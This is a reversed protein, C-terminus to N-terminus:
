RKQATYSGMHKEMVECKEADEKEKAVLKEYAEDTLTNTYSQQLFENMSFVPKRINEWQTILDDYFNGTIKLVKQAAPTELTVACTITLKKTTDEINQVCGGFFRMIAEIKKIDYSM